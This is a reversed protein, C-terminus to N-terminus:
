SPSRLGLSGLISDIEGQVEALEAQTEAIERQIEKPSRVHLSIEERVYLPLNLQFDNAQIEELTAVHSFGPVVLSSRFTQIIRNREGEPIRNVRGVQEFSRSADIFLVNSSEKGKDFFLIAVSIKTSSFLGAPLAIVCSLLNAEIFNRRAEREEKRFLAGLPVIVGVRGKGDRAVEIMHAVFAYDTRSRPNIGHRLLDPRSNWIDDGHRLGFPPNSIVVDAQLLRGSEAIIPSRLPDALEIHASTVGHFLLNMRCLSLSSTRWDQGIVAGHKAGAERILSALLGGSGCAPDFISEHAEPALLSAILRGLDPPASFEPSDRPAREVLLNALFEFFSGLDRDDLFSSPRLDATSITDLLHRLIALQSESAGFIQKFGITDFAGTLIKNSREAAQLADDLLQAIDKRRSAQLAAWSYQRPIGFAAWGSRVHAAHEDTNLRESALDSLLKLLFLAIIHRIGETATLKGQLIDSAERAIEELRRLQTEKPKLM